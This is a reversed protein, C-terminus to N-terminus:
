ILKKSSEVFPITKEIKYAFIGSALDKIEKNIELATEKYFSERAEISEFGIIISAHLHEKKPNDHAVNPTNWTMKNWPLYVQTRYETIGEHKSVIESLNRNIYNKFEKKSTGEKRQIFIVDRFQTDNKNELNFWKSSWPLGMHMLTRRFLNIEDKFALRTQKIGFLPAITNKYTVEAIGDIRRDLSVKTKINNDAPWFGYSIDSLHLQRYELLQPSAAIIKAHPGKWYNMSEQRPKDNRMYLLISLSFKRNYNM